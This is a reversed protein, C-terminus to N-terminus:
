ESEINGQLLQLIHGGQTVSCRKCHPYFCQPTGPSCLSTAPQHDGIMNGKKTGSEEAGCRHCPMSNLLEQEEATPKAGHGGSVPIPTQAHKGPRTLGCGDRKPKESSPKRGLGLQDDVSNPNLWAYAFTNPGGDLGVLDSQVYRGTGAEYDRYYNYNTGTERDYQQGPFRLNFTFRPLGGTPQENADTDGFPASDWRWM